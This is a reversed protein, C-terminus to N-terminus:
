KGSVSSADISEDQTLNIYNIVVDGLCVIIAVLIVLLSATFKMRASLKYSSIELAWIFELAAAIVEETFSPLLYSYRYLLTVDLSEEL